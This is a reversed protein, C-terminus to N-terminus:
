YYSDSPSHAHRGLGYDFGPIQAERERRSVPRDIGQLPDIERHIVPVKNGEDPRRAAALGRKQPVRGPVFSMPVIETFPM